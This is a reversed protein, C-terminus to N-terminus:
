SFNLAFAQFTADLRVFHIQQATYMICMYWQWWNDVYSKLAKKPVGICPFAFILCNLATSVQFQAEVFEDKSALTSYM